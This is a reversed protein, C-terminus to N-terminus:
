LKKNIGKNYIYKMFIEKLKIQKINDAEYKRPTSLDVLKYKIPLDKITRYTAMINKSSDDVFFIDNYGENNIKNLIWDAKAQPNGDGLAVVDINVNFYKRIIEKIHPIAESGRATLIVYSRNDTGASVIKYFRKAVPRIL